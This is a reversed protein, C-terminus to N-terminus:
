EGSAKDRDHVTLGHAEMRERLKRHHGRLEDPELQALEQARAALRQAHEQEEGIEPTGLEARMAAGGALHRWRASRSAAIKVVRDLATIAAHYQPRQPRGGVPKPNMAESALRKYREWAVGIEREIADESDFLGRFEDSIAVLDRRATAESVQFTKSGVALGEVLRRVIEGEPMGEVLLRRVVRRRAIVEHATRRRKAAM